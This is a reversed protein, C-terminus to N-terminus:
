LFVNLLVTVTCTKWIAAALPHPRAALPRTGTTRQNAALRITWAASQGSEAALPITGTASQGTRAALQGTGASLPGIRAALPGSRAAMARLSAALPGSRAALPRPRQKQHRLVRHEDGVAFRGSILVVWDAPLRKTALRFSFPWFHWSFSDPLALVWYKYGTDCYTGFFSIIQIIHLWHLFCFCIGTTGVMDSMVRKEKNEPHGTDWVLVAGHRLHSLHRGDEGHM